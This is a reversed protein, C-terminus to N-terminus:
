FITKTDTAAFSAICEKVCTLAARDGYFSDPTKASTSAKTNDQQMIFIHASFIVQFNEWVKVGLVM